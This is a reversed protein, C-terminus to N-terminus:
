TMHAVFLSILCKKLVVGHDFGIHVSVCLSPTALRTCFPVTTCWLLIALSHIFTALPVMDTTSKKSACEIVCTFQANHEYQCERQMTIKLNSRIYTKTNITIKIRCRIFEDLSRGKNTGRSRGINERIPDL